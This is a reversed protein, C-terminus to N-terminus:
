LRADAKFTFRLYDAVSTAQVSPVFYASELYNLTTDNPFGMANKSGTNALATLTPKKHKTVKYQYAFIGGLYSSSDYILNMAGSGFELFRQCRQLELTKNEQLCKTRHKSYELKCGSLILNADSPNALSNNDKNFSGIRIDLGNLFQAGVVDLKFKFQALHAEGDKILPQDMAALSILTGPTFDNEAPCGRVQVSLHTNTDNPPTAYLFSVTLYGDSEYLGLCEEAEIRQGTMKFSDGGGGGIALWNRKGGDTYKWVSKVGNGAAYWGDNIYNGWNVSTVVGNTEQWVNMNPNIFKNENPSGVFREVIQPGLKVGLVSRIYFNSWNTGTSLFSMSLDDEAVDVWVMANDTPSTSQYNLLLHRDGVKLNKVDLSVTTLHTRGSTYTMEFIIELTDFNTYSESLGIPNGMVFPVNSALITKNEGIVIDEKLYGIMYRPYATKGGGDNTSQTFTFTNKGTARVYVQWWTDTAWNLGLFWDTPNKAIDAGSLIDIAYTIDDTTIGLGVEIKEFDSWKYGGPITFTNGVQDYRFDTSLIEIKRVVPLEQENAGFLTGVSEAM